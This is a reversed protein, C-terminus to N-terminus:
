GSGITGRRRMRLPDILGTAHENREVFRAHAASNCFQNVGAHLGKSHRQEPREAIRRVFLPNAGDNALHRRVGKDAQGTL